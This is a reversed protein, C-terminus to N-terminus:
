PFEPILNFVQNEHSAQDISTKVNNIKMETVAYKVRGLKIIDNLNVEAFDNENIIQPSQSSNNPNNDESKIIYWLKNQLNNINEENPNLLYEVPNYFFYRGLADSYIKGLNEEEQEEKYDPGEIRVENRKRVLVHDKKTVYTNDKTQSCEYDYLGHSDRSWTKIKLALLRSQTEKAPVNNNIM